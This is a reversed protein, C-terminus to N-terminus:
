TSAMLKSVITIHTSGDVPRSILLRSEFPTLKRGATKEFLALAQPLKLEVGGSFDNKFWFIRDNQQVLTGESRVDTMIVGRVTTPLSLVIAHMGWCCDDSSRVLWRVLSRSSM